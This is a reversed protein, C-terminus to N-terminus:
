SGFDKDNVFTHGEIERFWARQPGFKSKRVTDITSPSRYSLSARTPLMRLFSVFGNPPICTRTCGDLSNFMKEYGQAIIGLDNHCAVEKLKRRHVSIRTGDLECELGLKPALSDLLCEIQGLYEPLFIWTRKEKEKWKHNGLRGEENTKPGKCFSFKFRVLRFSLIQPYTSRSAIRGTSWRM